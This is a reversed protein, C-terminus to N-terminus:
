RPGHSIPAERDRGQEAHQEVTRERRMRHLFRMVIARRVHRLRGSIGRYGVGYGQKWGIGCRSLRQQRHRNGISMPAHGTM